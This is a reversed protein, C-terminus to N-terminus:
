KYIFFWHALMPKKIPVITAFKNAYSQPFLFLSDMASPNTKMRVVSGLPLACGIRGPIRYSQPFLFLSDMASPNTKMRVVSGLPLACGIRGPIRYSQPFLFLSDMASPNTKM